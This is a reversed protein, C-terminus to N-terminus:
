LGMGKLVLGTISIVLAVVLALIIMFSKKDEKWQHILASGIIYILVIAVIVIAVSGLITSM